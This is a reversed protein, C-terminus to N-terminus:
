QVICYRENDQGFRCSETDLSACSIVTPVLLRAYILRPLAHARGMKVKVTASDCRESTMEGIRAVHTM